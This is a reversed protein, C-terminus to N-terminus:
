KAPEKILVEVTGKLAGAFAKADSADGEYMGFHYPVAIRAKVDLAAEAAEASGSMTYTQGLPLFAVDCSVSKMEPIRETDGAVYVRVGDAVIVYGVFGSSKPHNQSKVINYAPVTEVHIGAPDIAAGPKVQTFKAGKPPTLAFPAVIVTDGTAVKALDSPSYHDGHNHTILILDASEKLGSPLKYPDVFIVKSGAKIRLASQGYWTIGEAVKRVAAMDQASAAFATLTLLATLSMKGIM